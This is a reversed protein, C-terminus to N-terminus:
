TTRHMRVLITLSERSTVSWSVVPQTASDELPNPYNNITINYQDGTVINFTNYKSDVYHSGLGVGTCVQTWAPCHSLDIYQWLRVSRLAVCRWRTCVQTWAPCNEPLRRAYLWRVYADFISELLEIPMSDVPSAPISTETSSPSAVPCLSDSIICGQAGSGSLTSIGGALPITNTEEAISLIHIALSVLLFRPFVKPYCSLLKQWSM